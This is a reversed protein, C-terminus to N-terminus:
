FTVYLIGFNVEVGFENKIVEVIRKGIHVGRTQMGIVALRIPDEYPELFQHAFRQYTRDLDRATMIQTTQM